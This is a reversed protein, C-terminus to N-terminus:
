PLATITFATVADLNQLLHQGDIQAAGSVPASGLLRAYDDLDAPMKAARFLQDLAVTLLVTRPGEVRLDTSVEVRPALIHGPFGGMDIAPPVAGTAAGTGAYRLFLYGFPAPWTMQSVASLPPNRGYYTGNCTDPIGILFSLGSYDGAPAAIKFSMGSPDEANVLVVGYPVPAGDDGVLDVPVNEGSRLRLALDSAYFRFNTLTLAGGDTMFPEGFTVSKGAYTLFVSVTVRERTGTRQAPHEPCQAIAPATGGGAGIGGLGGTGSGVPGGGSGPTVATGEQGGTSGHGGSGGRAMNSGCGTVAAVIVVLIRRAM